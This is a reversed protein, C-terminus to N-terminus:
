PNPNYAVTPTNGAIIAAIQAPTMGLSTMLYTYFEQAQVDGNKASLALNAWFQKDNVDIGYQQLMRNLNGQQATNLPGTLAAEQQNVLNGMSRGYSEGFGGGYISGSQAGQQQLQRALQNQAEVDAPKNLALLQNYLTQPDPYYPAQPVVAPTTPTPPTPTTPTPPPPPAGQPTDPNFDSPLWEGLSPSWTYGVPHPGNPDTFQKPPGTITGSPNPNTPSSPRVRGAPPATPPPTAGGGPAGGGGPTIVDGGPGTPNNPDGGIIRNTAIPLSASMASSSQPATVISSLQGATSVPGSPSPAFPMSPTQPAQPEALTNWTSAAAKYSQYPDTTSQPVAQTRQNTIAGGTRAGTWGNTSDANAGQQFEPWQKQAFNPQYPM